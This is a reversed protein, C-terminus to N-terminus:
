LCIAVSTGENLIGLDPDTLSEHSRRLGSTRVNRHCKESVQAWQCFFPNEPEVRAKSDSGM